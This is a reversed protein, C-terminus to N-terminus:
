RSNVAATGGLMYCEAGCTVNATELLINIYFRLVEVSGSATARFELSLSSPPTAANGVRKGCGQNIHTQPRNGYTHNAQKIVAQGHEAFVPSGLIMMTPSLSTTAQEKSM